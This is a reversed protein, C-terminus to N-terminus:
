PPLFAAADGSCYKLLSAAAAGSVEVHPDDLFPRIANACREKLVTCVAKVAASRVAPSKDALLDRMGPLHQASSREALYELALARLRPNTSELLRAVDDCWGREPISRILELANLVASEDGSTLTAKLVRVTAEDTPLSSDDLNLRRSKIRDALARVYQSQGKFSLIVWVILLVLVLYSLDRPGLVLALGAIVLGTLGTVVPKMIGDIVAQARARFEAPIPRFFLQVTTNYVTFRLLSNAGAAGTAAWLVVVRASAALIASTAALLSVPLVLLGTLIGLRELIRGTLFFQIICAALGIFLNFASFYAALGDENGRYASRASIKWQYDILTVAAAMVVTILLVTFLHETRRLRKLDEFFGGGSPTPGTPRGVRKVVAQELQARHDRGLIHVLGLCIVLEGVMLLLLNPTGIRHVVISVIGGFTLMAIASGGGIFSFLRKAERTTFIDGALTWFQVVCLISMVDVLVYIAGLLALSEPFAELLVRAAVLGAIFVLFTAKFLVDRLLRRSLHAFWTSALSVAVAVGAYTFPIYRKDLRHLFLTSAVTRGVVFGVSVVGMFLFFMLFTKKYEGPQIKFLKELLDKM